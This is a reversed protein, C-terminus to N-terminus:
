ILQIPVPFLSWHERLISKLRSFATKMISIRHKVKELSDCLKQTVPLKSLRASLCWERLFIFIFNTATVLFKDLVLSFLM